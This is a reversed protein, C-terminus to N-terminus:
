FVVDLSVAATLDSGMEGFGRGAVASVFANKEIHYRGTVYAGTAREDLLTVEAFPSTSAEVQAGVAFSKSLAVMLAAGGHVVPDLEDYTKNVFIEADGFPITVGVNITLVFPDLNATMLGSIALDVTQSTLLTKEDALPVKVEALLGFDTFDEDLVIKGRAVFTDLSLHRTGNPVIQLGNDFVTILEGRDGAIKGSTLRAGLLIWRDVGYNVELTEQVLDANWRTPGGQSDDEFESSALELSLRAHGFEPLIPGASELSPVHVLSHWAHNRGTPFPNTAFHSWPSPRQNQRYQEANTGETAFLAALMLPVIM